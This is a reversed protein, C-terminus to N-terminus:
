ERTGAREGTAGDDRAISRVVVVDDDVDDVDITADVDDNPTTTDDSLFPFFALFLFRRKSDRLNM